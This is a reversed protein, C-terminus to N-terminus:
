ERVGKGFTWSFGLLVQFGSYNKRGGVPESFDAVLNYGGDLGLMFWRNVPVDLGVGVWGGPAAETGVTGFTGGVVSAIYPGAAAALYPRLSSRLSAKPFYYRAGLLINAVSTVDTSVESALGNAGISIM